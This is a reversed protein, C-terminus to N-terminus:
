GKQPTLVALAEVHPTQPLMDYPRVSQTLFGHGHLVGLDRVLTEPNCSVYVILRPGLRAAAKLVAPDCGRRPPNLVIVDAADLEDLVGAVDGCVFRTRTAHNLAASAKADEIAAPNEEIGIVEAARPALTLAVGGVGTYCDVVRETGSLAAALAVDGYLSAAVDRNVQFFATPSLRVHISGVKDSLHARGALPVDEDGYLVNGRTPNVNQVVGVVATHGDVIARAIQPGAPWERAATVITVLVEGLHNSRLIVYRLFGAGSREDYPAVDHATLAALVARQVDDLPPESVRCGQLDIVDHTRPAYAGLVRRGPHRPDEAYVLKARNRYGLPRPSPVCPSVAVTQLQVDGGVHEAVRQWKWALQAEYSMHQVVCGGCAGYGPCVPEVRAPSPQEVRVLRAWAHPRHPSVHAIEAQVKETPLAGAVHVRIAGGQEVTGVGAGEVDLAFCTLHVTDGKRVADIYRMRGRTVVFVL